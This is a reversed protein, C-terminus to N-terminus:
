IRKWREPQNFLHEPPAIEVKKLRNPKRFNIISDSEPTIDAPLADTNLRIGKWLYVQYGDSYAPIYIGNEETVYVVPPDYEIVKVGSMSSSIVLCLQRLFQANEPLKEKAISVGKWRFFMHSGYDFKGIVVLGGGIDMYQPSSTSYGWHEISGSQLIPVNNALEAKEIENQDVVLTEWKIFKNRSADYKGAQLKGNELSLFVLPLFAPPTHNLKEIEKEEQLTKRFIERYLDMREQITIHDDFDEKNRKIAEM